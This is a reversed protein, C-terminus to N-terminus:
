WGPGLLLWSHEQTECALSVAATVDTSFCRVRVVKYFLGFSAPPATDAVGDCFPDLQVGVQAFCLALKGGGRVLRDGSLCGELSAVAAVTTLRSFGELGAKRRSGRGGAVELVVGAVGGSVPHRAPM